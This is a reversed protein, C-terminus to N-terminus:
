ETCNGPGELVNGEVGESNGAATEPEWRINRESGKIRQDVMVDM